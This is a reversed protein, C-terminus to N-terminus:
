HAGVVGIFPLITALAAPEPFSVRDAASALHGPSLHAYTDSTLQPTSHGLIRQLTFIDGGSMVFHSAFTHRLDHVRIRPLGVRALAAELVHELKAAPSYMAGRDNPFVLEGKWPDALRHAKLIPVLAAAIPVIRQKGSKTLGAYNRRVTVIRRDLDVDSWRLGLAEGRRVGTYVLSAFLPYLGARNTESGIDAIAALLRGVDEPSEIPPALKARELPLMLKGRGLRDTPSAAIHGNAVAFRLISRVLAMILNVSRTALTTDIIRENGDADVRKRRIVKTQLEARLELIRTPTVATLPCDGFFTAVHLRFREENDQHSRLNPKSHLDLWQRAVEDFGVGARRKEVLTGDGLGTRIRALAEAAETRTRFGSKKKRRSGEFWRISFGPATSTGTSIITGFGNRRLRRSM